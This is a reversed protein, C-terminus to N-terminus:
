ANSSRAPPSSHHERRCSFRASGGTRSQRSTALPSPSPTSSSHAVPSRSAPSEGITEGSNSLPRADKTMSAACVDM